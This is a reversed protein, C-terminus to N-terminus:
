YKESGMGSPVDTKRPAEETPSSLTGEPRLRFQSVLSKLIQAQSSLEESAAASEESTASNTQVVSSIQDVGTNVQSVSRSQEEAAISIKTVTETVQSVGQVVTELSHATEDAIHTGNEVARLSGEILASTNKSAEASKSALNRVEDAVVAFGKGAAGARAAEVAANLALINTQFAIDEITKIIKGIEASSSSIEGMAELMQQMRRNSENAEDGVTAAQRSAEAANQATEQIQVSIENITAALEQVSSAQETAGQSLAQAGCSVQDSGAAVQDAGQNIRSLTSSLTICLQRVSQRFSKFDGVYSEGAQSHVDFNGEAMEGLLYSMDGVIHQLTESMSQFTRSLIGIEDQSDSEVHVDLQGQSIREAAQVVAKMPQLMKRLVLVTVLVLVLLASASIIILLFITETVSENVEASQVATLSWWTRGAVDIPSFFRTVKEGNERTTEATFAESGAMGNQLATLDNQNPTFESLSRGANALDESDYIIIGKDDYITAYMSPYRDSTADVKNFNEVKIDAMVVGQLEGESLIPVAYTVVKTGNFDYPETAYPMGSDAAGRYFNENAYTEYAGYPKIASDGITEDVYFAYDRVADSFKFPEFMAGMGSIDDNSVATSRLTESLFLETDYGIASLTNGYIVSRCLAAEKPDTPIKNLEPNEQAKNFARELYGQVSVASVKAVDFMEQIKAANATSMAELEGTVADSIATKSLMGTMVILCVFIVTLVCGLIVALKSALKMKRLM